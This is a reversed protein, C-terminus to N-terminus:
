SRMTCVLSVSMSNAAVCRRMRRSARQPFHHWARLIPTRSILSPHATDTPRYRSKRVGLSM